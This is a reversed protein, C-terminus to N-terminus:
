EININKNVNHQASRVWLTGMNTGNKDKIELKYFGPELFIQYNGDKDTTTTFPKEAKIFTLNADAVPKNNRTIRGYLNGAEAITLTFCIFLAGWILNKLFASVFCSVNKRFTVPLIILVGKTFFIELMRGPM